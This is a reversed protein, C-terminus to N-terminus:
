LSYPVTYLLLHILYNLRLVCTFLVPHPLANSHWNVPVTMRLSCHVSLTKDCLHNRQSWFLQFFGTHHPPVFFPKFHISSINNQNSVVRETFLCLSTEHMSTLVRWLAHLWVGLTTGSGSLRHSDTLTWMTGDCVVRCFETKSPNPTIVARLCLRM